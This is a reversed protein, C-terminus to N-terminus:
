PTLWVGPDLPEEGRMIEFHLQPTGDLRGTSGVTGIIAQAAMIDGQNVLVSALHGYLTYFGGPHRLLLFQGYGPFWDVLVVEGPAVAHVDTGESAALNVGRNFTWTKLEPDQYRGFSAVVRGAVPRRLSGRHGEMDFEPLEALRQGLREREQIELILKRVREDSRAIAEKNERIAEAMASADSRLRKLRRSREEIRADLQAKAREKAQRLARQHTYQTRQLTLANGVRRRDVRIARYDRQDQVAIRSLYRLRKLGESFSDASFLIQLTTFIGPSELVQVGARRGLKYVERLRQAMGEQRVRLRDEIKGLELRGSGVRESLERERRQVTRLETQIRVIDRELQGLTASVTRQESKAEELRKQDSELKSKLSDLAAQEAKLAGKLDEQARAQDGTAVVVALAIVGAFICLPRPRRM